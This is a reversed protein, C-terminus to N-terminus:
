RSTRVTHPRVRVDDCGREEESVGYWCPRCRWARAIGPKRRRKRDAAIGITDSEPVCYLRFRLCARFGNQRVDAAAMSTVVGDRGGRVPRPQAPRVQRKGLIFVSAPASHTAPRRVHACAVTTNASQHPASAGPLPTIPISTPMLWTAVAIAAAGDGVDYKRPATDSQSERGRDDARHEEQQIPLNSM